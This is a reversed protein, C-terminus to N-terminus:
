RRMPVSDAVAKPLIAPSAHRHNHFDGSSTESRVFVLLHPSGTDQALAIADLEDVALHQRHARNARRVDAGEVPDGLQEKLKSTVRRRHTPPAM